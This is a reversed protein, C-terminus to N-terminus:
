KGKKLSEKKEKTLLNHKAGSDSTWTGCQNCCYRRYKGSKTYTFGRSILPSGGCTPCKTICSDTYVRFDVPNHWPILKEYVCELALVDHKNYTRMESWAEKNGKLCEVWLEMGPFKKHKLKKFKVSLAQCLYELSNSTFGFTKKALQKTDIHRYPSPPNMKNIIFRANLKKADFAKGNQTIIIDAEDLLCWIGKLV